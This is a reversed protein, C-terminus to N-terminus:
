APVNENSSPPIKRTATRVCFSWDPYESWGLWSLALSLAGVTSTGVEIVAFFPFWTISKSYQWTPSGASGVCGVSFIFRM